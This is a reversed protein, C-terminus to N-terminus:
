LHYVHSKKKKKRNEFCFKPIHSTKLAKHLDLLLSAFELGAEPPDKFDAGECSFEVMTHKNKLSCQQWSLSATSPIIPVVMTSKRAQPANEPTSLAIVFKVETM